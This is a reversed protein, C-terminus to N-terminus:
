SSPLAERLDIWRDMLALECRHDTQDFQERRKSVSPSRLATELTHTRYQHM